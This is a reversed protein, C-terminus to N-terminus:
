DNSRLKRQYKSQVLDVLILVTVVFYFTTKNLPQVSGGFLELHALHGGESLLMIGVILLIFLGLVEYARNKKLFASVRNALWLMILGSVVIASAMVWLVDTLAIATLVSDFSFVVNMLAIAGIAAAPKRNMGGGEERSLDHALIHWVEKVATYVIFGGGLLAILSHGNFHGQVASGWDVHFLPTQFVAILQVLVLLLILRMVVAGVIGIRQVRAQDKLPVRGSEIAIYLLNDIGLVAELAILMLLTLVPELWDM